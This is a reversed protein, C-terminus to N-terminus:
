APLHKTLGVPTMPSAADGTRQTPPYDRVPRAMFREEPRATNELLMTIHFDSLCRDQGHRDLARGFRM